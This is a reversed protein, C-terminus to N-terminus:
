SSLTMYVYVSPMVGLPNASYSYFQTIQRRHEVFPILLWAQYIVSPCTIYTGHLIYVTCERDTKDLAGVVPVGYFLRHKPSDTRSITLQTNHKIEGNHMRSWFFYGKEISRM